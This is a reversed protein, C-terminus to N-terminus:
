QILLCFLNLVLIATRHAPNWLYIQIFFPIMFFCVYVFFMTVLIQKTRIYQFDIM